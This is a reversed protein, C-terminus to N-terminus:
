GKKRREVIQRESRRKHRTKKGLTSTGWPTQPHNGKVRGEGGGHPHDVPNMAVGRVTPRIGRWRTRGAKGFTENEHDLNGVQGVTAMCAVSFKRVEGSPLKVLAVEGEKSLLQASGGASRVVQGGRGPQLELNHVMTGPPIFRIPMANGPLIDAGEGTQVTMGVELGVPHLIYRKEGDAYHLLALLASRNPDYEIAAVKAPIKNKDRRFDVARYQQKHGGGRHWMSIEGHNNRGGSRKKPELLSKEPRDKTIESKDLVTIFRRSATYPNFSKLGM